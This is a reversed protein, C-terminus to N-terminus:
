GQQADGPPPEIRMWVPSTAMAGGDFGEVRTRAAWLAGTVDLAYIYAGDPTISIQMLQM